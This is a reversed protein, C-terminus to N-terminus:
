LDSESEAGRISGSKESTDPEFSVTDHERCNASKCPHRRKRPSNSRGGATRNPSTETRQLSRHAIRRKMDRRRWVVVSEGIRAIRQPRLPKGRTRSRSTRSQALLSSPSTRAISPSANRRDNATAPHRPPHRAAAADGQAAGIAQRALRHRRFGAREPLRRLMSSARAPSITLLVSSVGGGGGDMPRDTRHGALRQLRMPRLRELKGPIRQEHVLSPVDHPEIRRRRVARQQREADIFPALYVGEVARLRDQRHHRAHAFPPRVVVRRPAAAGNAASSVAVPKTM